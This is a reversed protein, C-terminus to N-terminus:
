TRMYLLWVLKKAQACERSTTEGTVAKDMKRGEGGKKRTREEM